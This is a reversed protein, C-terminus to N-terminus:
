QSVKDPQVRCWHDLRQLLMQQGEVAVVAEEPTTSPGPREPELPM